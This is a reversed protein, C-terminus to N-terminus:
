PPQSYRMLGDTPCHNHETHINNKQLTKRAYERIGTMIDQSKSYALFKEEIMTLLRVRQKLHEEPLDRTMPRTEDRKAERRDMHDLAEELQRLEDQKELLLRSQLFGFRRYIMFSEDSDLFAALNPYGRPLKNVIQTLRHAHDRLRMFKSERVRLNPLTQKNRARM